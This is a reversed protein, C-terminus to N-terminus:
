SIVIGDFIRWTISVPLITQESKISVHYPRITSQCLAAYGSSEYNMLGNSEFQLIGPAPPDLNRPTWLWGSIAEQIERGVFVFNSNVTEMERIIGLFNECSTAHAESYKRACMM